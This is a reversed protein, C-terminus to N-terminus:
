RGGSSFKLAVKYSDNNKEESLTTSSINIDDGVSQINGSYSCNTIIPKCNVGEFPFNYVSSGEMYSTNRTFSCNVILPKSEGNEAKNIIGAGYSAENNVFKCAKIKSNSKGGNGDNNIAGGDHDAKNFEFSCNVITASAEGGAGYNYIAAGDRGYNSKFICNKITPNSIGYSGDNYIAGGCRNIDGSVGTGDAYGDTITFGDITTSESVKSLYIVTYSNDEKSDYAGINGSLITANNLADREETSQEFGAFGGLVKIGDPINFSASRDNTTTPKYEGAAVWIEDGYQASELAETLTGFADEWSSGNGKSGEKVFVQGFAQIVTFVAILTILNKKM